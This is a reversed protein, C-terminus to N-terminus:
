NVGQNPKKKTSLKILTQQKPRMQRENENQHTFVGFENQM